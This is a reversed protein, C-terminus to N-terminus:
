VIPEHRFLLWTRPCRGALVAVEPQRIQRGVVLFKADGGNFDGRKLVTLADVCIPAAIFPPVEIRMEVIVGGDYDNEVGLGIDAGIAGKRWPYGDVDGQRVAADEVFNKNEVGVPASKL